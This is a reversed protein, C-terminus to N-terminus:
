QCPSAGYRKALEEVDLDDVYNDSNLDAEPDNTSYHDAFRALDLGDVDWDTDYDGPCFAIKGEVAYWFGPYLDFNESVPPNSTNMLPVPQGLTAISGFSESELPRGGGSLVSTTIKFNASQMGAYTGSLLFFLMCISIIVASIKM